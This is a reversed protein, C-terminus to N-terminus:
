PKPEKKQESLVKRYQKVFANHQALTESFHHGGNGTAVFYFEKTDPPNLVAAIAARGPNAIPAPPLGAVVYTNYPSNHQLDKLTLARKLPGKEKEVGYAVTPDSQLKMGKNLRNIFVAAVRPREDAVGTEKEVISALIVAEEVTRIPLNAKRKPWLETLVAQMSAQMREIILQRSDGYTFHYTEPLLFGEKLGEPVGGELMREKSLLEKIQPVTLGEPVTIKHVVVRGEAIMDMVLRPSIGATFAYEGAKFKRGDGTAAAIAKFLWPHRIVGKEAMHDVIARFGMGKKFFVNSPESLPGAASYYYGTYFVVSAGIISLIIFISFIKKGAIRM